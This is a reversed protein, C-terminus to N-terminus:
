GFIQFLGISILPMFFDEASIVGGKAERVFVDWKVGNRDPKMNAM